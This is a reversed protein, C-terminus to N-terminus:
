LFTRHGRAIRPPIFRRMKGGQEMARPATRTIGEAARRGCMWAQDNDTSVQEDLSARAVGLGDQGVDTVARGEDVKDVMSKEEAGTSGPEWLADQIDRCLETWTDLSPFQVTEVPPYMPESAAPVGTVTYPLGISPLFPFCLPPRSTHVNPPPWDLSADHDGRHPQGLREDVPRQIPTDRASGARISTADDSHVIHGDRVRLRSLMGSLKLQFPATPRHRLLVKRVTQFQEPM